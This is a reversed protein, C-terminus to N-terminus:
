CRDKRFHVVRALVNLVALIALILVVDFAVIFAGILFWRWFSLHADALFPWNYAESAVIAQMAALVVVAVRRPRPAHSFAFYAGVASLVAFIGLWLAVVM